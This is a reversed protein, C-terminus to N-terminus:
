APPTNRRAQDAQEPTAISSWDPTTEDASPETRVHPKGDLAGSPPRGRSLGLVLLTIVVIMMIGVLLYGM